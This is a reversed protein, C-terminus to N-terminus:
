HKLSVEILLCNLVQGSAANQHTLDPKASKAMDWLISALCIHTFRKMLLYSPGKQKLLCHLGLHFPAYRPMECPDASNAVHLIFIIKLSLFM